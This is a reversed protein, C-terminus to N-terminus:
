MAALLRGDRGYVDVPFRVEGDAGVSATWYLLHVPVPDALPVRHESGHARLRDLRDREPRGELLWEALARPDAVRVCGHSFARTPRDFLDRSPTDHLYVSHRNPFVFKFHGLANGPGPRQRLGGGPLWHYGNRGLYGPDRALRPRIENRVISAPVYWAPNVVVSEIASALIPTATRPTGVVVNMRLAPRGGDYAVLEQGGLDVLVFRDGLDDALWRWRELNLAIQEIRREVPVNLAALTAPGVVADVALGHRRQFRRVGEALPEDYVA